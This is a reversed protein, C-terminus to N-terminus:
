VNNRDVIELTDHNINESPSSVCLFTCNAIRSRINEIRDKLFQVYMNSIVVELGATQKMHEIVKSDSYADNQIRFERQAQRVQRLIYSRHVNFLELARDQRLDLVAEDNVSIGAKVVAYRTDKKKHAESKAWNKAHEKPDGVGETFFYVGKGLWHDEGQSEEFGTALIREGNTENTGHWGKLHIIKVDNEM